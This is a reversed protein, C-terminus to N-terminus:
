SDAKMKWNEDKQPAKEKKPAGAKKPSLFITM